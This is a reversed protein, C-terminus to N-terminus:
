VEMKNNEKGELHEQVIGGFLSIWCEKDFNALSNIEWCIPVLYYINNEDKDYNWHHVSLSRGHLLIHEENTIGTVVCKNDYSQLVQIKLSKNFNDNYPYKSKKCGYKSYFEWDTTASAVKKNIEPLKMPNDVGYREICTRKKKEKIEPRKMPHNSRFINKLNKYCGKQTQTEIMSKLSDPNWMPNNNKMRQRAIEYWGRERSTEIMKRKSIINKMPPNKKMKESTRKLGPHTDKTLGKNWPVNNNKHYTISWKSKIEKSKEEGYIQEYTKGKSCSPIGKPRGFKNKAM